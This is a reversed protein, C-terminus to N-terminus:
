PERCRSGLSIGISWHIAAGPGLVDAGGCAELAAGLDDEPANTPEIGVHHLPGDAPWGGYNVYIGVYPALEPDTRFSLECEEGTVSVTNDATTGAYLKLVTEGDAAAVTGLEVEGHRPWSLITPGPPLDRNVVVTAKVEDIGPLSLREGPHLALIPHMSWQFPVADKRESTLTYHCELRGGDVALARRFRFGLEPDAYELALLAEGHAIVQWPRGWLEGHDRLPAPWPAPTAAGPMVTPFLEDWGWAEAPGYEGPASSPLLSELSGALWQRGHRLCRIETVKGGLEPAVVLELRGDGITLPAVSV